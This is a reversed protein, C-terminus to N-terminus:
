EWEMLRLDFTIASRLTENGDQLALNFPTMHPNLKNNGSEQEQKLPKAPNELKM